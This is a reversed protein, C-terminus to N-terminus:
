IDFEAGPLGICASIPGVPSLAGTSDPSAPSLIFGEVKPLSPDLRRWPLLVSPSTLENSPQSKVHWSMGLEIWHLIPM